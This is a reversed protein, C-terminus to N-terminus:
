LPTCLARQLRCTEARCRVHEAGPVNLATNFRMNQAKLEQERRKLETIDIRVGISGGDSTRREEVRLWRGNPLRQEEINEAYAHREMRHALWSMECGHADPFQGRALAARLGDEFRAGSCVQDASAAYLQTYQRNWLVYRDDADLLVIGGPVVEFTERLRAHAAQAAQVASEADARAAILGREARRLETVDEHTTVWGGDSMPQFKIVVARGDALEVVKSWAADSRTAATVRTHFQESTLDTPHTGQAVRHELV